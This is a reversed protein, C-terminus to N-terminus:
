RQRIDGSASISCGTTWLGCSDVDTAQLTGNGIWSESGNSYTDTTSCKFTLISEGANGYSSQGATQCYQFAGSTGTFTGSAGCGGYTGKETVGGEDEFFPGHAAAPANFAYVFTLNPIPGSGKSSAKYTCGDGTDVRTFTSTETTGKQDFGYRADKLLVHVTDSYTDVESPTGTLDLTTKDTLTGSVSSACDARATVQYSGKLPSTTSHNDVIVYMKGGNALTASQAPANEDITLCVHASTGTVPVRIFDAHSGNDAGIVTVDPSGSLGSFDFEVDGVAGPLFNFANYQASLAPLKVPVSVRYPYSGGIASKPVSLLKNKKNPAALDPLVEPFDPHLDQYTPGFRQPWASGGGTLNPLRSDLNRVAFDEFHAAFPFVNNVVEDMAACTTVDKLQKWVDAVSAAGAEQQMFYPWIFSSYGHPSGSDDKAMSTLSLSPDKKFGDVYRDYVEGPATGPVFYSEAWTASAETFWWEDSGCFGVNTRFQLLHFFEHVFDSEFAPSNLRNVNLVM